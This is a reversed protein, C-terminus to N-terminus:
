RTSSKFRLLRGQPGNYFESTDAGSVPKMSDEERVVTAQRTLRHEHRVAQFADAVNATNAIQGDPSVVLEPNAPRLTKRTFELNGLVRAPAASM